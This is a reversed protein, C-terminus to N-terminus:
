KQFCNSTSTDRTGKHCNFWSSVCHHPRECGGSGAVFILHILSAYLTVLRPNSSCVEQKRNLFRWLKEYVITYTSLQHPIGQPRNKSAIAPRHTVHRAQQESPCRSQSIPSSTLPRTRTHYMASLKVTNHSDM